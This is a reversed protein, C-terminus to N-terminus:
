GKKGESKPASANKDSSAREMAKESEALTQARETELTKAAEGTKAAPAASPQSPKPEAAKPEAPESSLDLTGAQGELADTKAEIRAAAELEAPSAANPLTTEPTKAVTYLWDLEEPTAATRGAYHVIKGEALTQQFAEYQERTM